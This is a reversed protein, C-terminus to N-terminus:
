ITSGTWPLRFTQLTRLIPRWRRRSSLLALDRQKKAIGDLQEALEKPLRVSIATNM